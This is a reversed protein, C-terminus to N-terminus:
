KETHGDKRTDTTQGDVLEVLSAVDSGRMTLTHSLLMIKETSGNVMWRDTVSDGRCEVLSAIDSRRMTNSLHALTVNNKRAVTM